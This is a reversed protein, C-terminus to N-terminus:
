DVVKGLLTATTCSEVKVQVYSGISHNTKPFVIVKNQSNRGSYFDSSRKSYGEILVEFTKGIDALNSKHSSARQLSIIEELRRTKVEDPVDDKFHNAAFTGSRKSYNFMFAYDYGVSEMLSLTDQHDTETEGCFGAILDTSITADPMYRRIAEIRELYWERTYKRNMKELIANSGSQAPLHISKCINPYDAMVKLLDDSLDKPHSTAFRVRLTDSLCAVQEMLQPFSYDNEWRYSNVNQGLLTVEKYGNQILLKVESLITKPDRSRERGRTYPVVCYACFNNCGRMIAIFASIGNSDYRVPTIDDYTEITSLLTNVPRENDENLLVPLSRYADPGAILDVINETILQQQFREAMCGILGLKVRRRKRYLVNIETLRKLVRQEANERISCTNILIVDADVIEKCVIFEDSLISAVIESDTFNMQCGYTEIYLKKKKEM